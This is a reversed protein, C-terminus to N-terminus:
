VTDVIRNEANLATWVGGVVEERVEGGGVTREEGVCLVAKWSEDFLWLIRATTIVIAPGSIPEKRCAMRATVIIRNETKKAM